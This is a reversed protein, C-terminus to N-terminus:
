VAARGNAGGGAIPQHYSTYQHGSGNQHSTDQQHTHHDAGNGAHAGALYAPAAACIKEPSINGAFPASRSLCRYLEQQAVWNFLNDAVRGSRLPEHQQCLAAYRQHEDSNWPLFLTLQPHKQRAYDNGRQVVVEVLQGLEADTEPLGVYVVDARQGRISADIFDLHNTTACLLLRSYSQIGELASKITSLTLNRDMNQGQQVSGFFYEAEDLLVVAAPAGRQQRMAEAKEFIASINRATQNQYPSGLNALSDPTVCPLGCEAAYSRIITTKGTGPPGHAIILPRLTRPHLIGTTYDYVNRLALNLALVQKLQQAGAGVIYDHEPRPLVRAAEEPQVLRVDSEKGAFPELPQQEKRLHQLGHYESTGGSASGNTGSDAGIIGKLTVKINSLARAAARYEMSSFEREISKKLASIYLQQFTAPDHARVLLEAHYRAMMGLSLTYEAIDVSSFRFEGLPVSYEDQRNQEAFKATNPTIPQTTNQEDHGKGKKEPEASFVASGAAESAGIYLAYLHLSEKGIGALLASTHTHEIFLEMMAAYTGYLTEASDVIQELTEPSVSLGRKLKGFNWRQLLPLAKQVGADRLERNLTCELNEPNKM